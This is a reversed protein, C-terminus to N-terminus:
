KSAEDVEKIEELGSSISSCNGKETFIREGGMSGGGRSQGEFPNGEDKPINEEEWNM